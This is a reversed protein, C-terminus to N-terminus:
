KSRVLVSAEKLGESKATLKINGPKTKSQVVVLCKGNFLNREPKKLSHSNTPDGNDTGAIFGEGEITFRILNEAIPVINGDKDSAEVTIFSLDKGTAKLTERDATLRIAVPEGATRIEKCLVEKGNKRSVAKIVGPEFPVRWWVHLNDGEKKKTGLSRGNLFLEVEDANNCYAWVDVTEGPNQNWHPFIHLVEKNTWESQYMYYIDKPFGCLDIIGFYSSRSPWGFPTPEGLYDFGTWIYQGAIFDNKKILKWTEEHNSGWPVRCNDYSSCQKFPRDFPKDWREPWINISDSPMLYYGRSMLGSVSETAIFPKEPYDQPVTAYNEIRYNFGIIDLAGSKFLHNTPRTEDCGATIPRSPDLAKVIEALRQTLLMNFNLEGSEFKKPDIPKFNNLLKGAEELNSIEMGPHTGQELVENGISWMFVSPHNRDRLILDTLDKEYWELFYNSYDYTTKKKRWMDLAEDMVIFGMKDCLDLLEPTPPNHSCRIGNCGMAKLIELQREIARENVASGLCGLDHHNCVGNIKVRKGNLIFGKEADFQFSRIGTVTEYEDVIKGKRSLKTIVKYLYPNEISWLIPASIEIEQAVSSIGRTAQGPSSKTKGVVKGDQNVLINEVSIDTEQETTNQIRTVISIKASKETIEPTTVYTGWHAIHVPNKTILWVNRYIGSGSYWRSNPQNSNDAKVAIVNSEGFKIHPTLDYRFSIYGNPRKGASVGNIWVESNWYVGDFDIYIKQGEKEKDVTFTKRYWGIGGLLAGGSPTAPNDKSFDAEISWDHPLNLTRWDSDNADPSSYDSLSDSLTFKWDATFDQPTYTKDFASSCACFIITPILYLIQKM